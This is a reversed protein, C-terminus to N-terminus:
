VLPPVQRGEDKEIRECEGRRGAGVAPTAIRPRLDHGIALRHRDLRRAVVPLAAVRAIAISLPRMKPRLCPEAVLAPADPSKIPPLCAKAKAPIGGLKIMVSLVIQCQGGPPAVFEIKGTVVEVKGAHTEPASDLEVRAQRQREAGRHESRVPELTGVHSARRSRATGVLVGVLAVDVVGVLFVQQEVAGAIGRGAVTRAQIHPHLPLLWASEDYVERHDVSQPYDAPLVHRHRDRFHVGLLDAGVLVSKDFNVRHEAPALAVAAAIVLFELRAGLQAGAGSHRITEPGIGLKHAALVRAKVPEPGASVPHPYQIPRLEVANAQRYLAAPELDRQAGIRELQGLSVCHENTDTVVQRLKSTAAAYKRPRVASSLRFKAAAMDQSYRWRAANTARIDSARCQAGCPRAAVRTKGLQQLLASPRSTRPRRLHIARRPM